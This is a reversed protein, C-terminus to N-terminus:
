CSPPFIPITFSTARQLRLGHLNHGGNFASGNSGANPNTNFIAGVVGVETTPWLKMWGTRGAPIATDLRPTTRPFNNSLTQKLQCSGANFSFSSANELDDYLLGFVSGLSAVGTALNGGVRDLVLLQTNGDRLSAINSAALVRPVQSYEVGDLNLTAMSAGAECSPPAIATICEARLNGSFGNAFKVYEDGILNNFKTPCGTECDVAVAVIYGMVGPDLDSM